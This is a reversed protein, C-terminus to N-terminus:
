PVVIFRTGTKPSQNGPREGPLLHHCSAQWRLTVRTVTDFVAAARTSHPAFHFASLRVAVIDDRANISVSRNAPKKGGTTV